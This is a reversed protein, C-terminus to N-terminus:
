GMYRSILNDGDRNLIISKPHDSCVDFFFMGSTESSVIFIATEFTSRPVMDNRVAAFVNSILFDVICSLKLIWVALFGIQNQFRFRDLIMQNISIHSVLKKLYHPIEIPIM